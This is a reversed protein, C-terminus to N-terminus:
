TKGDRYALVGDEIRVDQLAIVPPPAKSANAPAPQPLTQSPVSPGFLWNPRGEATTELLIDPRVLVLRDIELRRRLRPLLAIPALVLIALVILGVRLGRRSRREEM